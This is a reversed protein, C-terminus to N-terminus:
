VNAIANWIAEIRTVLQQDTSSITTVFDALVAAAFALPLATPFRLVENAIIVRAAHGTTGSSEGYVELAVVVSALQVRQQFDPDYLTAAIDHLTDSGGPITYAM